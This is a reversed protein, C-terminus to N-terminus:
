NSLAGSAKALAARLAKSASGACIICASLTEEDDGEEEALPLLAAAAVAVAVWRTGSVLSGADSAASSRSSCGASPPVAPAASCSRNTSAASRRRHARVIELHITSPARGHHRLPSARDAHLRPPVRSGARSSRTRLPQLSQRADFM